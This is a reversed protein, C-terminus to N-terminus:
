VFLNNQAHCHSIFSKRDLEEWINSLSLNNNLISQHPLFTLSTFVLLSDLLNMTIRVRGSDDTAILEETARERHYSKCTINM